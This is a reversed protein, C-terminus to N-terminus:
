EASEPKSPLQSFQFGQGQDAAEADLKAQMTDRSTSAKPEAWFLLGNPSARKVLRNVVHNPSYESQGKWLHLVIWHTPHDEFAVMLHATDHEAAPAFLNPVGLQRLLDSVVDDGEFVYAARPDLKWVNPIPKKM